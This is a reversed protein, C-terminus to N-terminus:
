KEGRQQYLNEAQKLTLEYLNGEIPVMLSIRGSAADVPYSQELRGANEFADGPITVRFAGEYQLMRSMREAAQNTLRRLELGLDLRESLSMSQDGKKANRAKAADKLSFSGEKNSVELREFEEEGTFFPSAEMGSGQAVAENIEQQTPLRVKMHGDMTFLEEARLDVGSVELGGSQTKLHFSGERFDIRHYNRTGDVVSLAELLPLRKRLTLVDKGDLVIDGEFGIGESSNTSGFARLDGSITGEVFTTMAPALIHELDLNQIKVTGKVEPREGGIIRLGSFDV